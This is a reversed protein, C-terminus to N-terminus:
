DFDFRWLGIIFFLATFGLLAAIDSTVDALGLGRVMLNVLAHNAWAQPVIRTFPGLFQELVFIPIFAGGLIGMGWVLLTSLGSIQNETHALAAILIGFASSCLAILVVILVTVLPEPGLTVSPLGM